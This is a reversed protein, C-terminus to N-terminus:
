KGMRENLIQNVIAPNAQGKTKQMVLGVLYGRVGDKGAKIDAVPKPNELIIKDIIKGLEDEDGVQKLGKEEVIEQAGRGNELMEPFIEKAIKGSITGDQIMQIMETLKEPSINLIGELKLENIVWNAALKPDANKAVKEFYEAMQKDEALIEADQLKIGLENVYRHRKQAPLEPLKSKIKEFDFAQKVEFPPLDPEPFYRYDQAFEKSRQSYTVGKADDWGRTEKAIKEGGAPPNELLERQRKEEYSLAREIMKFSNMNKIEVPIGEVGDVEVSINGDCRLHGKEMDASSVGLYRMISRLEQLFIKAEQPSSIDPETVIEMLPTGARNLDVLSSGDAHLLKGADEELHIRRLNIKRAKDGNVIELYGGICFPLDFQSVQYGKPLDPYFYHKRDFKSFDAIECNLALGSLLTWEIAQRNAVPLVGPLGLCVPCVLSNPSAGEANNDCGCFMKSKTKLQVHIELGIVTKLNM